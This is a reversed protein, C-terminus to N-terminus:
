FFQISQKDIQSKYFFPFNPPIFLFATHENAIIEKMPIYFAHCFHFFTILKWHWFIGHLGYYHSM